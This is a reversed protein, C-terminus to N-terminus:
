TPGSRMTSSLPRWARGTKAPRRVPGGVPPNWSSSPYAPKDSGHFPQRLRFFIAATLNGYYGNPTGTTKQRWLRFHNGYVIVDSVSTVDIPTHTLMGGAELGLAPENYAKSVNFLSHRIQTDALVTKVSSSGRSGMFRANNIWLHSDPRMELYLAHQANSQAGMGNSEWNWLEIYLPQLTRTNPNIYGNQYRNECCQHIRSINVWTPFDASNKTQTINTNELTLNAFTLRENRATSFTGGVVTARASADGLIYQFRRVGLYWSATVHRGPTFFIVLPAVDSAGGRFKSNRCTDFSIGECLNAAWNKQENIAAANPGYVVTPTLVRIRFPASKFEGSTTELRVTWDGSWVGAYKLEATLADYALAATPVVDGSAADVLRTPWLSTWGSQRTLDGATWRNTPDIQFPGM